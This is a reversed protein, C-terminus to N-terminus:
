IYIIVDCIGKERWSGSVLSAQNLHFHCNIHFIMPKLLDDTDQCLIAMKCVTHTQSNEKRTRIRFREENWCDWGEMNDGREGLDRDGLKNQQEGRSWGVREKGGDTERKGYRGRDGGRKMYKQRELGERGGKTKLLVGPELRMELRGTAIGVMVLFWPPSVNEQSATM